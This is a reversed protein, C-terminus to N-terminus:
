PPRATQGHAFAVVALALSVLRVHADEIDYAQSLFFQHPELTFTLDAALDSGDLPISSLCVLVLPDQGDGDFHIMTVSVTVWSPPHVARHGKGCVM